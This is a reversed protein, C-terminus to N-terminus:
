REPLGPIPVGHALRRHLVLCEAHFRWTQGDCLEREPCLDKTEIDWQGCRVCRTEDVM